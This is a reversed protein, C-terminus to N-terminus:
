HEPAELDFYAKGTQLLEAPNQLRARLVVLSVKTAQITQPQQRVINAPADRFDVTVAGALVLLGLASSRVVAQNKSYWSM